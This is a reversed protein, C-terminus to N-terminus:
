QGWPPPLLVAGELSRQLSDDPGDAVEASSVAM